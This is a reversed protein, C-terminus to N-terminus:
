QAPELRELVEFDIHVVHVLFELTEFGTHKDLVLHEMPEFSNCLGPVLMGVSMKGVSCYSHSDLVQSCGHHDVSSHLNLLNLSFYKWLWGHKQHIKLWNQLTRQCCIRGAFVFYLNWRNRSNSWTERHYYWLTLLFNYNSIQCLFRGINTNRHRLVIGFCKLM